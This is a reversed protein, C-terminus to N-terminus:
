STQIPITRVQPRAEEPKPLTVTLVGNKYRATVQKSDIPKQFRLKREFSGTSSEARRYNAEASEKSVPKEGKLTLIDDELVVEFDKEELGPLEATIRYEEDSETVDIQPVFRATREGVFATPFRGFDTWLEDFLSGADRTPL